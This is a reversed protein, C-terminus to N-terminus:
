MANMILMTAVPLIIFPISVVDQQLRATVNANDIDQADWSGDDVAFACPM